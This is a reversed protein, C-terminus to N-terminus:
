KLDILEVSKCCFKRYGANTEIKVISEDEDIKCDLITSNGEFAIENVSYNKVEYFRIILQTFDNNEWDVPYMVEFDLYDKKPLEIVRIIESDHFHIGEIQKKLKNM